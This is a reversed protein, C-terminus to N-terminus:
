LTTAIIRLKWRANTANVRMGDTFNLIRFANAQDSFRIRVNTSNVVSTYGRDNGSGSVNMQVIDGISYGQETGQCVLFVQISKPVVGLGHAITLLGGSTITQDTSTFTTISGSPATWTGDARLFNTTGGGSLPVLGKLTSTFTNLLSTAQTATLDEPDGTAATIRGKFTATPVNALKANTVADNTITLATAGTVDGTHNANTLKATNAVIAANKDGELVTGATTGFNKNFATNESFTAKYITDFYAKLTAKINAWSLKKLINGAASDMLGIQDADIPTTKTTASNILAGITTVTEAVDSSTEIYTAGSWRYLKNTDLAVYIKGTEGTVPFAALEAFEFVDDVYSPLQASPVKGGVLDAKDDLATQTATSIPKDADSTNDVNSLGVQSKTVGHPNDTRVDHDGDTVLDLEAKNSHTHTDGELAEIAGQITGGTVTNDQTYALSNAKTQVVTDVVVFIEDNNIANYLDTSWKIADFSNTDSVELTAGALIVADNLDNIIVTYGVINKLEIKTKPM